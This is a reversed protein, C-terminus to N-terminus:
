NFVILVLIVITQASATWVPPPVSYIRSVPVGLTPERECQCDCTLWILTVFPKWVNFARLGLANVRWASLTILMFTRYFLNTVLISSTIVSYLSKTLEVDLTGSAYFDSLVWFLKHWADRQVCLLNISKFIKQYFIAHERTKQPQQRFLQM